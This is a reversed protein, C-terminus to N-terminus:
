MMMHWLLAVAAITAAVNFKIVLHIRVARPAAGDKSRSVYPSVAGPGHVRGARFTPSGIIAVAPAALRITGNDKIV